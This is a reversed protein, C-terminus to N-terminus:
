HLQPVWQVRVQIEGTCMKASWQKAQIRGGRGIEWGGGQHLFLWGDANWM